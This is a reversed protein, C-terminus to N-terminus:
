RWSGKECSCRFRSVRFPSSMSVPALPAFQTSGTQVIFPRQKNKAVDFLAEGQVLEIHRRASSYHVVIESSTNLYAVSGDKLPIVRMEGIQTRYREEGWIRAVYTAASVVGVLGAAISGGFLFQRRGPQAPQATWTPAPRDLRAGAPRQGQALAGYHRTDAALWAELMAQAGPSLPGADIRAAWIAAVDYVEQSSLRTKM